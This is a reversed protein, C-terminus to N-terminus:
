AYPDIRLLDRVKQVGPAHGVAGVVAHEELWSRVNGSLTVTGDKVEVHIREAERRAHRQAHRELVEEIMERVEEPRAESPKVHINNTVGKVGTLNRVAREADERESLRDVTGELNIWGDTVTSRIRKDPILVDWELARRVVQAIDTDTRTLSGPVKIQIDNAVDLVGFVRHAAEQAALKKAYSSVTGTLTVVGKDVEVGVETEEVRTDWKLEQLVQRHIESDSKPAM